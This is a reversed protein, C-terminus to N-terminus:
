CPMFCPRAHQPLALADTTRGHVAARTRAGALIARHANFVAGGVRLELDAFPGAGRDPSVLLTGLEAGLPRVTASCHPLLDHFGGTEKMVRLVRAGAPQQTHVVTRVSTLVMLDCTIIVTHSPPTAYRSLVDETRVLSAIGVEAAPAFDCVDM